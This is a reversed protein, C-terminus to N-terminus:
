MVGFLITSLSVVINITNMRCNYINPNEGKIILEIRWALTFYNFAFYWHALTFSVVTLAIPVLVGYNYFAKDVTKGEYLDDYWTYITQHYILNTIEYLIM